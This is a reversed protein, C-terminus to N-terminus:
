RAMNQLDIREIMELTRHNFYNDPCSKKEMVSDLIETARKSQELVEPTLIPNQKKIKELFVPFLNDVDGIPDEEKKTAAHDATPDFSFAASATKLNKEYVEAVWYSPHEIITELKNRATIIFDRTEFKLDTDLKEGVKSLQLEPFELSRLEIGIEALEDLKAKLTNAEIEGYKGLRLIAQVQAKDRRKM